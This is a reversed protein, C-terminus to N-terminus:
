LCKIGYLLILWSGKLLLAVGESHLEWGWGAAFVPTNMEDWSQKNKVPAFM